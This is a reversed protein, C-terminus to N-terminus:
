FAYRIFLFCEYGKNCFIHANSLSFKKKMNKYGRGGFAFLKKRAEGFVIKIVFYFLHFINKSAVDVLLKNSISSICDTISRQGRLQKRQQEAFKIFIAELSTQSLAYSSLNFEESFCFLSFAYNETWYLYFCFSIGFWIAGFKGINYSM